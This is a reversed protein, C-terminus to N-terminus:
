DNVRSYFYINIISLYDALEFLEEDTMINGSTDSIANSFTNYELTYKKNNTSFTYIIIQDNIIGPDPNVVSIEKFQVSLVFALNRNFINKTIVVSNADEDHFSRHVLIGMATSLHNIKFYDREEYAIYNWLSAWVKNIVIELTKKVHNLKGSYSSYLGAGNFGELDEANTSYRFRYSTFRTDSTMKNLVNALFNDDLPSDKITNHIKELM